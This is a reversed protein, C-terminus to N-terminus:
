ISFKEKIKEKVNKIDETKLNKTPDQFSIRLTIKDHYRDVLEVHSVLTSMKHIDDIIQGIQGIPSIPITFDEIIPPYQPIPTYKKTPDHFKVLNEVHLYAIYTDKKISFTTSLTPHLKGIVGVLQDFKVFQLSQSPHFFLSNTDQIKYRTDQSKIGLEEFLGEVIGKLHYFSTQNTITLMSIESPLGIESREVGPSDRRAVGPTDQPNQWGRPTLYVKSLEFLQLNESYPQNKSITELMQPILSTRMFETDETLPNSVKLHDDTKLGSRKILEKSMFSYHYTEIHGWYKLVTKIKEEISFPNKTTGGGGPSGRGGKGLSRRVPRTVGPTNQPQPIEGRMIYSPLNHYGYIRAVEEVIDEPITVDFQRYSPPTIEISAKRVTQKVGPTTYVTPILSKLTFTFGLSELISKIEETKLTIGLRKNIFDTTINISKPKTPYLYIDIIESKIKGGVLKQYLEIGRLFATKALEPDPHKENIAAAMTRIGYRMSTKRIVEPKNSEIFFIIRKTKDNVVSNETGMIGPLDIVRGTGDDIVVDEEDLLYKKNDLTIIPEGKKAKRIIFKHTKIRDYDFVHSPHGLELMVYNTIDVINNLARIGSKELRGKILVPSPKVGDIEMVIGLIRNCNKESDIIDMPLMPYRLGQLPHGQSAFNLSKQKAPIDFRPLIAAAERAIGVVSAM